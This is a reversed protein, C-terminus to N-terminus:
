QLSHWHLARCWRNTNFTLYVMSAGCELICVFVEDISTEDYTHTICEGVVLWTGGVENMACLFTMDLSHTFNVILTGGLVMVTMGLGNEFGFVTIEAITCGNMTVVGGLVQHYLFWSSSTSAFRYSLPV